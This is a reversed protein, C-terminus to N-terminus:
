FILIDPVATNCAPIENDPTIVPIGLPNLISGGGRQLGPVGNGEQYIWTGSGFGYGPRNNQLYGNLVPNGPIFVQQAPGVFAGGRDEIYFTGVPTTLTVFVTANCTGPTVAGLAPAALMGVPLMLAAVLLTKNM